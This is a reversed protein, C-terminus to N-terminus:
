SRSSSAEFGLVLRALQGVAPGSALYLAPLWIPVGLLDPQLHAFAGLHVLTIEVCPGVIATALALAAGQWTRDSIGWGVIAAVLAVSAKIMNSAPLFGTAFYAAVFLALAVAIPGAAPARRGGLARYGLAYALGGFAASSGFLLPAWWAMMLFIPTPYRTAGGHTHFGDCFTLALAGFFFLGAVRAAVRSLRPSADDVPAHTTM